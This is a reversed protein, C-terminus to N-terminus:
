IQKFMITLNHILLPKIVLSLHSINYSAQFYSEKLSGNRQFQKDYNRTNKGSSDRTGFVTLLLIENYTATACLFHM